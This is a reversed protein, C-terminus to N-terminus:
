WSRRPRERWAAVLGAIAVGTAAGAADAYWDALECSRGVPIQLWEDVAGYVLAVALSVVAVNRWGAARLSAYIAVSLVLYGYFHAAKDSKVVIVPLAVPLHTLAFLGLWYVLTGLWIVRHIWKISM